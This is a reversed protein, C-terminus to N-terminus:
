SMWLDHLDTLSGFLYILMFSMFIPILVEVIAVM